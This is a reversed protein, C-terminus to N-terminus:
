CKRKLSWVGFYVLVSSFLWFAGPLPVTSHLTFTGYSVVINGNGTEGFETYVNGFLVLKSLISPSHNYLSAYMSVIHNNADTTIMPGPYIAGQGYPVYMPLNPDYIYTKNDFSPYPIQGGISSVSLNTYAVSGPFYVISNPVLTESDIDFGGALPRQLMAYNNENDQTMIIDYHIVDARATMLSGFTFILVYIM